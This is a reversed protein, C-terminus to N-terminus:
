IAINLREGESPLTDTALPSAPSAGKYQVQFGGRDANPTFSLDKISDLILRLNDEYSNSFAGIVECPLTGGEIVSPLTNAFIIYSFKEDQQYNAITIAGVISEAPMKAYYEAILGKINDTVQSKIYKFITNLKTDGDIIDTSFYTKFQTTEKGLKYGHIKYALEILQKAADKFGILYEDQNKPQCGNLTNILKSSEGKTFDQSNTKELFDKINSSKYIADLIKFIRNHPTICKFELMRNDIHMAKLNQIQTFLATQTREISEVDVAKNIVGRLITRETEGKGIRGDYGKLEIEGIGEVHLDGKKPNTAETFLTIAVEGPGVNVKGESLDIQCLASLFRNDSLTQVGPIKLVKFIDSGRSTVFNSFANQRKKFAIIARIEKAIKKIEVPNNIKDPFTENLISNIQESIRKVAYDRWGGTRAWRTILEYLSEETFSAYGLVKRAYIDSLNIEHVEDDSFKISVTAESYVDSLSQWERDLNTNYNNNTVGKTYVDALSQWYM